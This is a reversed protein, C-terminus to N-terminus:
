VNVKELYNLEKLWKYTIKAFWEILYADSEDNDNNTKVGRADFIMNKIHELEHTITSYYIKDINDNFNLVIMVTDREKYGLRHSHAYIWSRDIDFEKKLKKLNDTICLIFKFHYIPVETIKLIFDKKRSKKSKKKM